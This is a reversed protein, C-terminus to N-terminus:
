CLIVSSGAHFSRPVDSILMLLGLDFITLMCLSNPWPNALDPLYFCAASSWPWTYLAFYAFAFRAVSMVLSRLVKSPGSARLRLYTSNYLRAESRRNFFLTVLGVIDMKGDWSKWARRRGRGLGCTYPPWVLGDM